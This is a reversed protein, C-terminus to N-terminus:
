GRERKLTGLRKIKNSKTIHRSYRQKKTETMLKRIVKCYKIFHAKAKLDDSNKSFAYLCRKHKCSIKIGQAIWYSKEKM